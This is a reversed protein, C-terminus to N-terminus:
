TEVTEPRDVRSGVVMAAALLVLNKLVFEGEVTLKLPNGETFAIDPLVVFVLFTGVMQAALAALVVRLPWRVALGLGILIEGVGLTPVFWEPDVWYVTSAVLDGVPSVGFLKLAGFWVFVVALSIRLITIGWRGLWAVIGRDLRRAWTPFREM